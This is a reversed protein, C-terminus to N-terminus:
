LQLEAIHIHWREYLLEFDSERYSRKFTEGEQKSANGVEAKTLRDM